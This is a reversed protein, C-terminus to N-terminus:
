KSIKIKKLFSNPPSDIITPNEHYTATGSFILDDPRGVDKDELYISFVSDSVVKTPFFCTQSLLHTDKQLSVECKEGQVNKIIGYVDPSPDGPLYKSDWPEGGAKYETVELEFTVQDAKVNATLLCCSLLTTGLTIKYIKKM